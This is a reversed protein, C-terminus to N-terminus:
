KNTDLIFYDHFFFREGFGCPKGHAGQADSDGGSRCECDIATRDLRSFPLRIVAIQM